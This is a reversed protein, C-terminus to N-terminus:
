AGLIEELQSSNRAWNAREEVAERGARGMRESRERTNAELFMRLVRALDACDGVRFLEGTRGVEVWERNGPTNSAVVPLKCAMAQLLTVSSGDVESATVYAEAARLLPPLQNEYVRGIFSVRETVNLSATLQQLAARLTGDNGIILHVGQLDDAVDAFARIIDEVRYLPELARLSLVIRSNPPIGLEAPTTTPGDPTFTELDVGWPICHIRSKEMGSRLAISTTHESDVILGSLQQLWSLDANSTAAEVLDFGWSLGYLPQRIGLLGQAVTLLPGALVPHSSTELQARVEDISTNERELSIPEVAFGCSNLAQVWREDHVGWEATVYICDRRTM